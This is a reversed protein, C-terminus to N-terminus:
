RVLLKRQMWCYWLRPYLQPLPIIYLMLCEHSTLSFTDIPSLGQKIQPSWLFWIIAMQNFRIKLRWPPSTSDREETHLEMLVPANDSIVIANYSCPPASRDHFLRHLHFHSSVSFLPSPSKERLLTSFVAMFSQIAKASKSPMSISWKQGFIILFVDTLWVTASPSM